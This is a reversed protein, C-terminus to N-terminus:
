EKRVNVTQNDAWQAGTERSSTSPEKTPPWIRLKDNFCTQKTEDTSSADESERKFYSVKTNSLRSQSEMLRRDTMALAQGVTRAILANTFKSFHILLSWMGIAIGCQSRISSDGRTLRSGDLVICDTGVDFVFNRISSVIILVRSNRIANSM